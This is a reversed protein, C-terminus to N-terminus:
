LRVVGPDGDAVLKKEAPTLGEEYLILVTNAAITVRVKTPGRGIHEKAIAVAGRSIEKTPSSQSAGMPEEHKVKDRRANPATIQPYVFVLGGPFPHHPFRLM